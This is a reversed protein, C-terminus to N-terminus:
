AGDPKPLSHDWPFGLTYNNTDASTWGVTQHDDDALTVRYAAAPDLSRDGVFALSWKQWQDDVEDFDVRFLQKIQSQDDSFSLPIASFHGNDQGEGVDEAGLGYAPNAASQVIGWLYGGDNSKYRFGTTNTKLYDSGITIFYFDQSTSNRGDQPTVLYCDLPNFFTHHVRFPNAATPLLGLVCRM